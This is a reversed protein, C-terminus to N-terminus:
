DETVSVKLPYGFRKSMAMAEATKSVAVDRVYCAITAKGTNHAAQAIDMAEKTTKKFVETLVLIVFEFPTVDNNHLVCRWQSPKKTRVKDQVGIDAFINTSPM